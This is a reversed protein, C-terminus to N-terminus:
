GRIFNPNYVINGHGPEAKANAILGPRGLFEMPERDAKGDLIRQCLDINEQVIGPVANGDGHSILVTDYRNALLSQIRKLSAQYTEVSTSYHDFLFTFPNCADGLLLRREEPILLVMSGKTHGPCAYAEISIGGLHFSAGDQLNHYASIPVEPTFDTEPDVQESAPGMMPLCSIRFALTKHEDYTYADTQNIYVSDPPFESAGMAHDVHGHTLLVILPKSTLQEILPRLSGIGCGSDLLAAQRDGEVLYMLDGSPAYIRTIRDSVIETQFAPVSM